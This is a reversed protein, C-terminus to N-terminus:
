KPSDVGIDRLMAELAFEVLVQAECVVDSSAQEEKLVQLVRRRKSATVLEPLLQHEAACPRPGSTRRHRASRQDNITDASGRRCARGRRPIAAPERAAPAALCANRRQLPTVIM